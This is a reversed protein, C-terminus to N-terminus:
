KWICFFLIKLVPLVIDLFSSLIPLYIICALTLTELGIVESNCELISVTYGSQTAYCNSHKGVTGFVM